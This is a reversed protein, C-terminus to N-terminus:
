RQLVLRAARQGLVAGRGAPGDKVQHVGVLQGPGAVGPFALVEKDFRPARPRELPPLLLVLDRYLRAHVVSLFDDRQRAKVIVRDLPTVRQRNARQLLLRDAVRQPHVYEAGAPHHDFLFLSPHHQFRSPHQAVADLHRGFQPLGLPQPDHEVVRQVREHVVQHGRRAADHGGNPLM